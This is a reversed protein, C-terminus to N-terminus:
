QRGALEIRFVDLQAGGAIVLVVVGIIRMIAMSLLTNIIDVAVVFWGISGFGFEGHAVFVVKGIVVDVVLMVDLHRVRVICLLV